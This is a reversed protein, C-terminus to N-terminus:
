EAMRKMARMRRKKSRSPEGARKSIGRVARAPVRQYGISPCKPRSGSM